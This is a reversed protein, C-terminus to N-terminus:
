GEDEFLLLFSPELGYTRSLTLLAQAAETGSTYTDFLTADVAFRYKLEDDEDPAAAEWETAEEIVYVSKEADYSALFRETQATTDILSLHGIAGQEPDYFLVDALLTLAFANLDFSSPM